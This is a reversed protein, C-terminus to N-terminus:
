RDRGALFHYGKNQIICVRLNENGLIKQRRM